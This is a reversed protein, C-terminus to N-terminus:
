QGCFPLLPFFGEPIVKSLLQCCPPLFCEGCGNSACIQQAPNIKTMRWFGETSKAATNPPVFHPRDAGARRGPTHGHSDGQCHHLSVKVMQTQLVKSNVFYGLLIVFLSRSILHLHLCHLIM